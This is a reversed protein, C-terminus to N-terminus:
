ERWLCNHVANVHRVQIGRCDDFTHKNFKTTRIEYDDTGSSPMVVPVQAFIEVHIRHRYVHQTEHLDGLRNQPVKHFATTSVQDTNSRHRGQAAIPDGSSVGCRLRKLRDVEIAKSVQCSVTPERYDYSVHLWAEDIGGHHLRFARQSGYCAEQQDYGWGDRGSLNHLSNLTPRLM